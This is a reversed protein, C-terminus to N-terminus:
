ILDMKMIYGVKCIESPERLYGPWLIVGDVLNQYKQENLVELWAQYAMAQEEHDPPM